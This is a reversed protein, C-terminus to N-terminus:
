FIFSRFNMKREDAPCFHPLGDALRECLPGREGALEKYM